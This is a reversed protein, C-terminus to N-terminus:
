LPAKAKLPLRSWYLAGKLPVLLALIDPLFELPKALLSLAMLSASLWCLPLVLSLVVANEWCFWNYLHAGEGNSLLLCAASIKPLKPSSSLLDKPPLLILPRIGSGKGAGCSEEGRKSEWPVEM